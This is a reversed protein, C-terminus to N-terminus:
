QGAGAEDMDAMRRGLIVNYTSMAEYQQKLLGWHKESILAPRPKSLLENLKHMRESLERHEIVVRDLPTGSPRYTQEFVDAPSWSVYGDFHPTNSNSDPYIVLYGADSGNEDAPLPWGRLDNYEQRNMPRANITKTGQYQKLEEQTVDSM